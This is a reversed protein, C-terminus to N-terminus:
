RMEDGCLMMLKGECCGDQKWARVEEVNAKCLHPTAAPHPEVLRLQGAQRRVGGVLKVLLPHQQQSLPVVAEESARFTLTM